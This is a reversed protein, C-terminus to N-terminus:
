VDGGKTTQTYTHTQIYEALSQVSYRIYRGTKQYSVHERGKSRWLALTDPVVHLVKATQKNSLTSPLTQRTYGLDHAINTLITELSPSANVPAPKGMTQRASAIPCTQGNAKTAQM